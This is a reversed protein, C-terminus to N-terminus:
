PPLAHQHHLRVRRPSAIGLTTRAKKIKDLTGQAEAALATGILVSLVAVLM